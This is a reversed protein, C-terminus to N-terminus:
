LVLERSTKTMKPQGLAAGCVHLGLLLLIHKKSHQPAALDLHQLRQSQNGRRDAKYVAIKESYGRQHFSAPLVRPARKIFTKMGNM